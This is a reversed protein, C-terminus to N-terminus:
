KTQDGSYPRDQLLLIRLGAGLTGLAVGLLIGRFAGAVPVQLLWEKLFPLDPWIQFGLPVQGLLLVLAAALVVLSERTRLRLARYAASAAFFALLSFVTANLPSLVYRYAWAVGGDSLGANGPWLGLLITATAAVLLVVSYPWGALRGRIRRFHAQCVNQLGLLMAAALIITVWNSLALGGVDLAPHRFFFGTLTVLGATLAVIAAFRALISTNM